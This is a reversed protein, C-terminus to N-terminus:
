PQAEHNKIHVSLYVYRKGCIPCRVATTVALTRAPRRVQGARPPLAHEAYRTTM